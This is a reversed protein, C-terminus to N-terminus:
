CNEHLNCDIIPDWILQEPLVPCTKYVTQDLLWPSTKAEKATPRQSADAVLLRRIFQKAENSVCAWVGAPEFTYRAHLIRKAILQRDKEGYCGGFPAIGCLLNYAIVGISWLDCREDYNRWIVEPAM